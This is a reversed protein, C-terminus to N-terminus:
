DLRANQLAKYQRELLRLMGIEMRWDSFELTEAVEFSKLRKEFEESSMGLEQEFHALRQRTRELGLTVM